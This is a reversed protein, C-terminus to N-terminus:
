WATGRISTVRRPRRPRCPLRIAPGADQLPRLLVHTSFFEQTRQLRNGLRRSQPHQLEEESPLAWPGARDSHSLAPEAKGIELQQHAQRVRQDRMVQADELLR